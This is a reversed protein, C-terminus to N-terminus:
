ENPNAKIWKRSLNYFTKWNVDGIRRDSNPTGARSPWLRGAWVDFAQAFEQYRTEASEGQLNKAASALSGGYIPCQRLITQFGKRAKSLECKINRTKKKAADEDADASKMDMGRLHRYPQIKETVNGTVFLNFLHALNCNPMAFGVPVMHFRGDPWMWVRFGNEQMTGGPYERSESGNPETPEPATGGGRLKEVEGILRKESERMLGEIDRWSIDRVGDLTYNDLIEKVIRQPMEAHTHMMTAELKDLRARTAKENDNIVQGVVLWNPAGLLACM